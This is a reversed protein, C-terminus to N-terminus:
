LSSYRDESLYAWPPFPVWPSIVYLYGGCVSRLSKNVGITRKDGTGTKEITVQWYCMRKHWISWNQGNTVRSIWCQESLPFHLFSDSENELINLSFHLHIFLFFTASTLLSAACCCCHCNNNCNFFFFPFFSLHFMSLLIFQLSIPGSILICSTRRGLRTIKLTPWGMLFNFCVWDLAPKSIGCLQLCRKRETVDLIQCSLIRCPNKKKEIEM